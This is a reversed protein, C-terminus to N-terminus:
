AISLLAVAIVLTDLAALVASEVALEATVFASAATDVALEVAVAKM